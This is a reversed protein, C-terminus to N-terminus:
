SRPQLRWLNANLITKVRATRSAATPKSRAKLYNREILPNSCRTINTILGM